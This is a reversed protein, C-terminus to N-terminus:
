NARIPEPVPLPIRWCPRLTRAIPYINGLYAEPINRLRLNQGFTARLVHNGFPALFGALAIADENNINGLFAAILM